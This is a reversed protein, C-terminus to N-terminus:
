IEAIVEVEVLANKPLNSVEVCSRAPNSIFYESYVENFKAFDNINALLCTTKVVKDFSTNAEELIAKINEMVQTAQTIIDSGEIIGSIPNIPIQGSTYLMGNIIIAQSYPGIAKPAKQAEIKKIM